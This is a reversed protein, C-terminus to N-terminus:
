PASWSILSADGLRQRASSREQEPRHGTELWRRLTAVGAELEEPHDRELRQFFSTQRRRTPDLLAEPHACLAAISADSVDAFWIPTASAGPLEDLMEALTPRHPLAFERMSPFLDYAWTVERLHDAALGIIALRGSARLVRRSEALAQRWDSVQHLMSIMTLADYSGDAFPLMTAEGAVVALGKAEAHRRMAPSADLVIPGWGRERLAAAYNGTGGGVDLMQRGPAAEMASVLASLVDGSVGRATDYREAQRSYDHKLTQELMTMDGMTSLLQDIDADRSSALVDLLLGLRNELSALAARRARVQGLHRAVLDRLEDPESPGSVVSVIEELALGLAKLARIRYLREVERPGYRRYGSADRAAPVLLGLRDYYHLTRVTLGSAKALEGIVIGPEDGQAGDVVLGAHVM